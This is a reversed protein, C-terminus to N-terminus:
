YFLITLNPESASAASSALGVPQTDATAPTKTYLGANAGTGVYISDGPAFTETTVIQDTTAVCQGYAVAVQGSAYAPKNELHGGTANVVLPGIYGGEAGDALEVFGESNLRIARGGVLKRLEATFDDNYMIGNHTGLDVPNIPFSAQIGKHLVQLM